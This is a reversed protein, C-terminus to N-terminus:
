LIMRENTRAQLPLPRVQADHLSEHWYAKAEALDQEALWAIYDSFRPAPALSPLTDATIADYAIKLEDFLIGICWRDIILHHSSWILKYDHEALQILTLRMLPASLLNFGQARDAALVKELEEQQVATPLHRWDLEAWPLIVKERVVQLPEKGDQWVFITRLASHRDVLLQWAKKYAEAHLQGHLRYVIQNFLVDQESVATKAHLLMLQQMPSLAYIDAVNKM